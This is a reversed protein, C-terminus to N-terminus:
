FIKLVPGLLIMVLPTLLTIAGMVLGFIKLGPHMYIHHGCTPCIVYSSDDFDGYNNDCMNKEKLFECGCNKCIYKKYKKVKFTKELDGEKIILTLGKYM